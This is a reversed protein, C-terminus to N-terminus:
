PRSKRLQRSQDYCEFIEGAYGWVKEKCCFRRSTRATFMWRLSWVALRRFRNFPIGAVYWSTDTPIGFARIDGRAKDFWWALFYQKRIRNETVPHYVVASPEYWLQEGAELLRSGFESDESRIESGPRPGLDTRFGGFKDFVSKRFAMNTGCPAETLPAATKGLDFAALPALAGPGEPLWTPPPATWLPLVRGATGVWRDNQLPQILNQLWTPEVSVDDDMFVLIEGRAERIGANLAYSKGPEPEFMYRFRGPYRHCFDKVADPTRDSSNNDIVLVEWDLADTFRSRTLGDLAKELRDCRNFTCLIVTVKMEATERQAV